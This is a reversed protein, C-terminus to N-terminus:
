APVEHRTTAFSLLAAASLLSAGLVFPAWWGSADFLLGGVLAGFTIAFQILAVQLGGAAELDNPVVRTMWTGWAVPIPNALFGWIMLLMAVVIPMAGSGVLALALAAMLAPIGVLTANLHTRLVFGVVATGALGALGLGLLV